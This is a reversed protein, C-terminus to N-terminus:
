RAIERVTRALDAILGNEVRKIYLGPHDLLDDMVSRGDPGKRTIYYIGYATLMGFLFSKVHVM